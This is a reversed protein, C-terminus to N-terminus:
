TTYGYAAPDSFEGHESYDNQLIQTLPINGALMITHAYYMNTILM